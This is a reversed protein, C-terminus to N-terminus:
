TTQNKPWHKYLDRSRIRLGQYGTFEIENLLPLAKEVLYYGVGQPASPNAPIAVIESKLRKCERASIRKLPSSGNKMGIVLLDGACMQKYLIDFFHRDWLGSSNYTHPVTEAIHNIADRIPIDFHRIRSQRWDRVAAGTAAVLSTGALAYWIVAHDIVDVWEAWAKLNAPLGAIGLAGWAFPIAFLVYKWM